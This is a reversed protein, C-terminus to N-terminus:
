NHVNPARQSILEMLRMIIIQQNEEVKEFVDLFSKTHKQITPRVKDNIEYQKRLGASFSTSYM